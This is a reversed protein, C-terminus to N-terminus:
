LKYCMKRIWEAGPIGLSTLVAIFISSCYINRQNMGGRNEWIWAEILIDFLFETYFMNSILRFVKVHFDFWSLKQNAFNILISRRRISDVRNIMFLTSIVVNISNCYIMMLLFKIRCVWMYTVMGQLNKEM